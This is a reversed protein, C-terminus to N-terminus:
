KDEIRKIVLEEEIKYRKKNSEIDGAQIVTLYIRKHPIKEIIAAIEWGNRYAEFPGSAYVEVYKPSSKNDDVVYGITWICM